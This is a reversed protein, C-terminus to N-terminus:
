RYTLTSNDGQQGGTAVEMRLIEGHLRLIAECSSLSLLDFPEEEEEQQQEEPHHDDDEEELLPEEKEEASIWM